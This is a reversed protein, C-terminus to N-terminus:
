SSSSEQRKRCSISCDYVDSMTVRVVILERVCSCPQLATIHLVYCTVRLVCCAVRLIM